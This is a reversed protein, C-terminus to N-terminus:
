SSQKATGHFGGASTSNLLHRVRNTGLNSRYRQLKLARGTKTRNTGTAIRVAMRRYYMDSYGKCETDAFQQYRRRIREQDNM